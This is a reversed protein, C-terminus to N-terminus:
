GQALSSAEESQRVSAGPSPARLWLSASAPKMTQDVVALLDSTLAELDVEDRLRASFRQVTAEADFRSRYFRRDVFRQIARRAPSFLAAVALTSGAVALQSQGAVPSVVGQIATVLAYYTASLTATLSGYVLTRNIIVDIDYLRHRLIAIGVAVPIFWFSFLGIESVVTLWRPDPNGFAFHLGLLVSYTVAVVGAAATLWKLQLRARGRSRRFRQILSVACGVIAVPILFAIVSVSEGFVRLADIGLPNEVNPYGMDGFTTPATSFVVYCLILVVACYWAWPKWRPSPVRGDPILLLVFTGSLGIVPIWTHAELALAVSKASSSLLGKYQSGSPSLKLADALLLRNM